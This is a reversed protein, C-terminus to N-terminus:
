KDKVTERSDRLNQMTRQGLFAVMQKCVTPLYQNVYMFALFGAFTIWVEELDHTVAVLCLRACRDTKMRKDSASMKGDFTQFSPDHM